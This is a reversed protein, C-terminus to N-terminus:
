DKNMNIINKVRTIATWLRQRDKEDLKHHYLDGACLAIVDLERGIMELVIHAPFPRRERAFEGLREPFLDKFELGITDLISQTECEALCKMLIRGDDLERLGLSPTKDKHAPCRAVWSNSNIKKVGQLRALVDNIDM